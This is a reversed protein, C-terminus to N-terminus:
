EEIIIVEPIWSVSYLIVQGSNVNRLCREQTNVSLGNETLWSLELIM